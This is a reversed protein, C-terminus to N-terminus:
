KTELDLLRLKEALALARRRTARSLGFAMFARAVFIGGFAYWGVRFALGAVVALLVSRIAWQRAERRARKVLTRAQDAHQLESPDPVRSLSM